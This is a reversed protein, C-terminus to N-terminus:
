TNHRSISRRFLLRSLAQGDFPFLPYLYSSGGVTKTSILTFLMAAIGILFGILGGYFGWISGLAILFIFLIRFMKFCYGLQFSPQVFSFVTVFAMYLLVEPVFLEAAVAFEGLILAGVLGFANSLSSPTNLSAVRLGDVILEVAIIQALLPVSNPEVINFVALWPPIFEPHSVFLFWTPMLFLTMMFILFRIIRLYTGIIPPFYYENTDQAFDFIATPLVMAVPSTDVLVLIKGELVSAAARDPRETLRIRPFPNWRQDRLLCESLSEQSMSLSPITINQLKKRINEVYKPKAIGDMYCIVIDTKSKGGVQVIEMSLRPDRIRRRILASNFVLTEVFGDHSGRLVRDDEPESVSRVPYTRADILIAEDYGEVILALTGSLVATAIKDMQQESSVETYTIFRKIFDITTPLSQFDEPTIKSLFEIMKELVEDKTFADVFYMAAKRGGIVINRELLDFSKDVRLTTEMLRHNEMYDATLAPSNM